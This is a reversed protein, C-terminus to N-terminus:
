VQMDTLLKDAKNLLSRKAATFYDQIKKGMTDPDAVLLPKVGFMICTAEMTLLVGPPPRGM